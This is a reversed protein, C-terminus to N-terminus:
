AQRPLVCAEPLFVRGHPSFYAATFPTETTALKVLDFDPGLPDAKSVRVGTKLSEQRHKCFVRLHTNDILLVLKSDKKRFGSLLVMNL